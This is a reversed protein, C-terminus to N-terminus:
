KAVASDFAEVDFRDDLIDRLSIRAAAAASSLAIPVPVQESTASAIAAAKAMAHERQAERLANLDLNARRAAESTIARDGIYVIQSLGILYLIQNPVSFTSINQSGIVILAFLAFLSFVIAQLRTLDVEGASQVLDSWKPAGAQKRLIANGVLWIRNEDSLGSHDRTFRAAGAGAM